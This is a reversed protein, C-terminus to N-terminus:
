FSFFFLYHLKSWSTNVTPTVAIVSIQQVSIECGLSHSSIMRVGKAISYEREIASSYSSKLIRFQILLVSSLSCLRHHVYILFSHLGRLTELVLSQGRRGQLCKTLINRATPSSSVHFFVTTELLVECTKCASLSSRYFVNENNLILM